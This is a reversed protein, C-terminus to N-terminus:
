KDSLESKLLESLLIKKVLLHFDDSYLNMM